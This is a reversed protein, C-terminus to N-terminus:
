TERRIVAMFKLRANRKLSRSREKLAMQKHATYGGVSAGYAMTMIADGVLSGVTSSLPLSM